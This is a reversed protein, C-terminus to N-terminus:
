GINITILGILKLIGYLVFVVSLIVFPILIWNEHVFLRKGVLKKNVVISSTISYLIVILALIKLELNSTIFIILAIIILFITLPYMARVMKKPSFYVASTKLGAKKDFEYDTVVTPIYFISAMFFAGIVLLPNMNAGGISLGAVFIVGGAITNCLVDGVPKAKFRFPPASYVYGVGDIILILMFFIPNIMWAFLISLSLFVIGLYLGMKNSIEGTAIPQYALNMDKSRGNHLRDVDKDAISNLIFSFSMWCVFVLFSFIVDYWDSDSTIGLGLGVAFPFLFTIWAKPRLLRIYKSIM